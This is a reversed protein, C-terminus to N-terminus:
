IQYVGWATVPVGLGIIAEIARRQMHKAAKALKKDLVSM